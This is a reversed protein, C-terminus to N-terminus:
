TNRDDYFEMKIKVDAPKQTDWDHPVHVHAVKVGYEEEFNQVITLIQTELVRRANNLDAMSLQQNNSM